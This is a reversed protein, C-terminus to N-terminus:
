KQKYIRKRELRKVCRKIDRLENIVYQIKDSDKM